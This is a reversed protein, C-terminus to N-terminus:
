GDIGHMPEVVIALEALERAGCKNCTSPTVAEVWIREVTRGAGTESSRRSCRQQDHNANEAIRECDVHDAQQRDPVRRAQLPVRADPHAVRFTM